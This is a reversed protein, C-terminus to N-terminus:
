GESRGDKSSELREAPMDIIVREITQIIHHNVEGAINVDVSAGYRKPMLRAAVWKRTDVRLKDRQINQPQNMDGQNNDSIDIIESAYVEASMSKALFYDKAFDPHKNIWKMVTVLSPIGPESCISTVSRGSAIQDIIYNVTQDDKVSPRGLRVKNEDDRRSDLRKSSKKARTTRKAAM